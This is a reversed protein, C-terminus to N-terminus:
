YQLNILLGKIEGVKELLEMRGQESELLEDAMDLLHRDIEEILRYRRSRGRRDWGRTNKIAIGKRVTEELFRKVMMKYLRLERVTMSRKLREAQQNIEEIMKQLQERSAREEQQQMVDSFSKARVPTSVNPETKLIGKQISRFGPNIKLVARRGEL